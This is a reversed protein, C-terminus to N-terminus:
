DNRDGTWLNKLTAQYYGAWFGKFHFKHPVRPLNSIISIGSIPKDDKKTPNEMKDYPIFYRHFLVRVELGDKYVLVKAPVPSGFWLHTRFSSIIDRDNEFPSPIDNYKYISIIWIAAFLFFLFIGFVPSLKQTILILVIFFLLICFNTGYLDFPSLSHAYRKM